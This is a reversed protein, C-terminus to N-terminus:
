FSLARSYTQSRSLQVSVKPRLMLSPSLPLKIKPSHKPDKKLDYVETFKIQTMKEFTYGEIIQPPTSIVPIINM